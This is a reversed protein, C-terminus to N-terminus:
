LVLNSIWHLNYSICITIIIYIISSFATFQSFLKLAFSHFRKCLFTGKTSFHILYTSERKPMRVIKQAHLIRRHGKYFPQMFLTTFALLFWFIYTTYYQPNTSQLFQCYQKVLKSCWIQGQLGDNSWVTVVKQESAFKVCTAKQDTPWFLVRQVSKAYFPNIRIIITTFHAKTLASFPFVHCMIERALLITWCGRPCSVHKMQKWSFYFGKKKLFASKLFFSIKSSDCLVIPCLITWPGM